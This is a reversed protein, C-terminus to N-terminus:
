LVCLTAEKFLWIPKPHDTVSEGKGNARVWVGKLVLFGWCCLWGKRERGRQPGGAAKSTRAGCTLVCARVCAHVCM